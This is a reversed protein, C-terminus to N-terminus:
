LYANKKKSKSKKEANEGEHLDNSGDGFKVALLQGLRLDIHQGRQALEANGHGFLGFSARVTIGSDRM